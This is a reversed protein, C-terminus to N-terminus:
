SCCPSRARASILQLVTIEGKGHRAFDPLHDAVKDTFTFAGREALVWLATATVVKTNSYLLFLSDSKAAKREPAIRAAGFARELVLRGGRALAIQCGPYRGEAVHGDILAILREIPEKRFEAAALDDAALPFSPM